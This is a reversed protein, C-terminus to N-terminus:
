HLLSFQPLLERIRVDCTQEPVLSSGSFFGSAQKGTSDVEPLMYPRIKQYSNFIQNFDMSLSNMDVKWKTPDRGDFLKQKMKELDAAKKKYQNTVQVKHGLLTGLELYEHKKFHFFSALNDNVYKKLSLIESSWEHIGGILNKRTEIVTEDGKFSLKSYLTDEADIMENYTSAIKSVVDATRQLQNMLDYCLHKLTSFGKANGNCLTNLSTFLTDYFQDNYKNEEFKSFMHSLFHNYVHENRVFSEKSNPNQYLKLM